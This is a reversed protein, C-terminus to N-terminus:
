CDDAFDCEAALRMLQERCETARGFDAVQEFLAAMRELCCRCRVTEIQTATITRVIAHADDLREHKALLSALGIRYNVRNPELSIARRALSEVVHVPYGCRAAYYGMDYYPQSREPDREAAIQCAKMALRPQDIGDLGVATQMLLDVTMTGDDFRAVFLDRALGVSGIKGYAEALAVRALADLPVLLSARELADVCSAFECRDRYILGCLQWIAGDNENVALASEALKLAAELDGAAYANWIALREATMAYKDTGYKDTKTFVCAM